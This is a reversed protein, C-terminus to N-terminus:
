PTASASPSASSGAAAATEAMVFKFVNASSDYIAAINQGAQIAIAGNIVVKSQSNWGITVPSGQSPAVTVSNAAISSVTGQIYKINDQFKVIVIQRAVNAATLGRVILLDGVAINSFSGRQTMGDMSGMSGHMGDGDGMGMGPTNSTDPSNSSDPFDWSEKMNPM